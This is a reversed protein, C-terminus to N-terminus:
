EDRSQVKLRSPFSLIFRAGDGPSSEASIAGQYHEMIKRCIALGIGNGEYASRGHLRQFPQFIIDSYETSFGIGEDEVVVEVMEKSGVRGNREYIKIMPPIDAKHFKLANSILNQFLQQLHLHDVQLVPLEDIQVQAGSREIRLELDSLVESVVQSLKVPEKMEGPSAVRSYSLLDHIMVSMRHAANQMRQFYDSDEKTLKGDLRRTLANSFSEIKRLPEQLDHSAIFAFEELDRNSRELERLIVRIREESAARMASLELRAEVRAILERVSFPKVLYDDAGAELGTLRAEEGARASLLIIPIKQTQEESRIMRLLEFGDLGPMMIDSLVLDPTHTRIMEWATAGDAATQVSWRPSLLRVLYERMDANDDAVLIKAQHDSPSPMVGEVESVTIDDSLTEEPLWRQAEELYTAAGLATSVLTRPANIREPPLHDKGLPVAVTFTSGAGLKSSVRVTGGHLRVLEKVLALGIGSGEHTRARAARLRNFRKFLQKQNETDIGIGTDAVVLEVESGKSKLLVAIEGEFTFKFANSLLNFVIKEWLDRDVYVPQELAECEVRLRLGAREITSRFVSALDATMQDLRVPEFAAEMRGAEIRSFDLMTNVLKLLRLGNRNVMELMEREFVVQQKHQDLVDQVPGLMLTLPTRFEHSVNSFFETKARDLEALAEARKREEELATVNTMASAVQGVVLHFYSMYSDDLPRIPSVGTVLYGYPSEKASQTIPLVLCSDVPYTHVRANLKPFRDTLGHILVPQQSKFAEKLLWGEKDPSLHDLFVEPSFFSNDPNLGFTGVIRLSQHQDELYAAAFPVDNPNKSLADIAALCCAERSQLVTTNATLEQLTEMRRESIVRRTTETVATFVGVIAGAVDDRIPSYSFTFYCEEPADNRDLILLGDESWTAEGSRLVGELMPGIIDWIEPWCERGRQGMAQPHKKQGLIPRYADNYLMILEKGWWILIPFRSNLCISVSTRLSPSWSSVPGLINRSWDISRMLAGMEGGGTLCTNNFDPMQNKSQEM